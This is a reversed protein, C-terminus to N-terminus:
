GTRSSRMRGAVTDHPAPHLSSLSFSASTLLIRRLGGGKAQLKVLLFRGAVLTSQWRYRSRDRRPSSLVDIQGRPLAYCASLAQTLVDQRGDAPYQRTRLAAWIHWSNGFFARRVRAPTRREPPIPPQWPLRLDAVLDRALRLQVYAPLHAGPEPAVRSASGTTCSPSITM